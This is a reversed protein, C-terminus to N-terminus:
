KVLIMKKIDVFKGSQLRYLYVGSPQGSADWSVTYRGPQKKEDVLLAVEQGLLNYVKLVVHSLAPVEFGLGTKPNFPNPYNQLLKFTVPLEAVPEVSTLPQATRYLGGRYTGALLNGAQDVALSLVFTQDLGNNSLLTWNDGNDYSAYVGNFTGALVTQAGKFALAYLYSTDITKEEWTTGQNTSRYIGGYVGVFVHGSSNVALTQIDNRVLGISVWNFGNDTSLFIGNQSTAAYLENSNNITLESVVSTELGSQFWTTGDPSRYVGFNTAAFIDGFNNVLVAYVSGSINGGSINSWQNGNDTTSYVGSDTAAYITSGHRTLSYIYQPIDPSLLNDWDIGGNTTKFLGSGLTGVLINSSDKALIANVSRKRPGSQYWTSGGDTSRYIGGEYSYALLTGSTTIILDEFQEFPLNFGSWQRDTLNYRYVGGGFFNQYEVTAGFMQGISDVVLKRIYKRTLGLPDWTEGNNSSLFVGGESLDGQVSLGGALITNQATVTLTAIWHPVLRQYWTDGYDTSIHVGFRMTGVYFNNSHDIAFSTVSNIYPMTTDVVKWQGNEYRVLKPPNTYTLGYIHGSDSVKVCQSYLTPRIIPQRHLTSWTEGNDTSRLVHDFIYDNYLAIVIKDKGSLTYYSGSRYQSPFFDLGDNDSTYIGNSDTGVLIRGNVCQYLSWGGPIGNIDQWFATQAFSSIQVLLIALVKTIHHKIIVM